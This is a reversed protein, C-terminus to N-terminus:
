AGARTSGATSPQLVLLFEATGHNAVARVWTAARSVRIGWNAFPLPASGAGELTPGDRRWATTFTVVRTTDATTLLATLQASDALTLPKAFELTATPYPGAAPRPASEPRSWGGIRLTALDVQLTAATARRGAIVMTGTVASTRGVLEGSLGFARQEVRLGAQSGPGVVWAGDRPGAPVAAM